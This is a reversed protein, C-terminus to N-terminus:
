PSLCISQQVLHETKLMLGSSTVTKLTFEGMEGIVLVILHADRTFKVVCLNKILILVVVCSTQSLQEHQFTLFTQSGM